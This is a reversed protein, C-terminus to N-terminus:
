HWAQSQHVSLFPISRCPHCPSTQRYSPHHIPHVYQLVQFSVQFIFIMSFEIMGGLPNAAILRNPTNNTSKVYEIHQIAQLVKSKRTLPKDYCIMQVHLTNWHHLYTSNAQLAANHKKSICRKKIHCPLFPKFIHVCKLVSAELFCASKNRKVREVM